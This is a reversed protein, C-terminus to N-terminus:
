GKPDELSFMESQDDYAFIEAYRGWHPASCFVVPRVRALCRIVMAWFALGHSRNQDIRVRLSDTLSLVSSAEFAEIPQEVAGGDVGNVDVAIDGVLVFGLWFSSAVSNQRWV